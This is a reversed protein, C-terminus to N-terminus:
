DYGVALCVGYQCVVRHCHAGIDLCLSLYSCYDDFLCFMEQFDIDKSQSCSVTLEEVVEVSRDDRM